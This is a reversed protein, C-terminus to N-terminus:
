DSNFNVMAVMHAPVNQCLQDILLVKKQTTNAQPMAMSLIDDITYNNSTKEM